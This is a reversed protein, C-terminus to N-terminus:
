LLQFIFSIDRTLCTFLKMRDSQTIGTPLSNFCFIYTKEIASRLFMPMVENEVDHGKSFGLLINSAKIDAHVYEKEHLFQLADVQM